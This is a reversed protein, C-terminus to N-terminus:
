WAITSLSTLDSRHRGHQKTEPQNLSLLIFPTLLVQSGTGRLGNLKFFRVFLGLLHRFSLPWHHRQGQKQGIFSQSLM